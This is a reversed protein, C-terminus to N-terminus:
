HFSSIGRLARDAKDVARQIAALHQARNQQPVEPADLLSANLAITGLPNRIQHALDSLEDERSRLATELDRRWNAIESGLRKCRRALRLAVLASGVALSGLAVGALAAVRTVASDRFGRPLDPGVDGSATSPKSAIQRTDLAESGAARPDRELPSPGPAPTHHREMFGRSQLM